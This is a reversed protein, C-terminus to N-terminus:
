RSEEEAREKTEAAPPPTVTSSDVDPHMLTALEATVQQRFSEIDLVRRALRIGQYAYRFLLTALPVYIIADLVNLLNTWPDLVLPSQTISVIGLMANVIFNIAVGPIGILLWFANLILLRYGIFAIFKLSNENFQEAEALEKALAERRLESQAFSRRARRKQIKTTIFPSLISIPISVLVGLLFLTVDNMETHEGTLRLERHAEDGAAGRVNCM